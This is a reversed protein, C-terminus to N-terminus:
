AYRWWLMLAAFVVVAAVASKGIFNFSKEDAARRTEDRMSREVYNIAAMLGDAGLSCRMSEPLHRHPLFIVVDDQEEQVELGLRKAHRIAKSFREKEDQERKAQRLIDAQAYVWCDNRRRWRAKFRDLDTM